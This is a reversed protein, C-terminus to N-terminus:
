LLRMHLTPFYEHQFFPYRNLLNEGSTFYSCTVLVRLRSNSMCSNDERSEHHTNGARLVTYLALAYGRCSVVKLYMYNGQIGINNTFIRLCLGNLCVTTQMGNGTGFYFAILYKQIKLIPQCNM